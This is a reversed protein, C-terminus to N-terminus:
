GWKRGNKCMLPELPRSKERRVRHAGTRRSALPAFGGGAVGQRRALQRGPSMEAGAPPSIICFVIYFLFAKLCARGHKPARLRRQNFAHLFPFAGGAQATALLRGSSPSGFANASM